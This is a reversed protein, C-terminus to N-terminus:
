FKKKVRERELVSPQGFLACARTYRESRLGSVRGEIEAEAEDDERESRNATGM